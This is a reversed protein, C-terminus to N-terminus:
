SFDGSNLGNMFLLPSSLRNDGVDMVEMVRNKNKRKWFQYSAKIHKRKFHGGLSDNYTVTARLSSFSISLCDDM